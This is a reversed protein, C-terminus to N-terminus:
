KGDARWLYLTVEDGQASTFHDVKAPPWASGMSFAHSVVRAGPRLQRTLVPRLRANGSALVYLTVVTAKSVDAQLADELRFEVLNEVGAARANARAEQVLKADIEIGVARAGYKKAAAICIRGDGSGLDYVVDDKTTGALALLRDVVDEPTTAFPAIRDQLLLSLGFLLIAM